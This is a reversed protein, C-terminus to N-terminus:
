DGTGSMHLIEALQRFGDTISTNEVKMQTLFSEIADYYQIAEDVKPDSGKRYAGLRILEAMDEYTSILAKARKVIAQQNKDLCEPMARSVSKLIDIAPYRGRDAISRDM